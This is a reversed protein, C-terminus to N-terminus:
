ATQKGNQLNRYEMIEAKYQAIMEEIQQMRQLAGENGKVHKEAFLAYADRLGKLQKKAHQYQQETNIM